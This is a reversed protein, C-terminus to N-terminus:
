VTISIPMLGERRRGGRESVAAREEASGARGGVIRIGGSGRRDRGFVRLGEVSGAGTVALEESGEGLPAEGATVLM